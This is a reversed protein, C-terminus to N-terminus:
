PRRSSSRRCAPEDEGRGPRRRPRERVRRRLERLDVRGLLMTDTLAKVAGCPPTDDRRQRVSIHWQEPAEVVGDLSIFEAVIIKRMATQSHGGFTPSGDAGGYLHLSRRRGRISVASLINRQRDRGGVGM